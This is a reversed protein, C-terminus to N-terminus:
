REFKGKVDIPVKDIWAESDKTYRCKRYAKQAERKTNFTFNLIKMGYDTFLGWRYDRKM